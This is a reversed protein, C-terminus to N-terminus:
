MSESSDYRVLSKRYSERIISNAIDIGTAVSSDKEWYYRDDIKEILERHVDRRIEETNDPIGDDECEMGLAIRICSMVDNLEKYTASRIYDGLRDKSVTAIQECLAMSDELARVHCHTSMEKMTSSLWVVNVTLARECGMDSSVVIAPRTKVAEHAYRSNNSNEVWFIDGRRVDM